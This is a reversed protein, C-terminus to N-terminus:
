ESPVDFAAMEQAVRTVDDDAVAERAVDAQLEQLPRNRRQHLPQALLDAGGSAAFDAPEHDPGCGTMQSVTEIGVGVAAGVQQPQAPEGDDSMSVRGATRDCIGNQEGGPTDLM